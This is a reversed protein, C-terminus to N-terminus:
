VQAAQGEPSTMDVIEGQWHQFWHGADLFTKIAPNLAAVFRDVDADPRVKIKVLGLHERIEVVEGAGLDDDLVYVVRVPCETSQPSVIKDKRLQFWESTALFKELEGNLARTYTPTDATRRIRVTIIGRDEGIAVLQGPKLDEAAEYVVRLM